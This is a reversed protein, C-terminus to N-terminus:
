FQLTVEGSGVVKEPGKEAYLTLVAFRAGHQEYTEKIVGRCTITDKPFTMAGFRMSFDKVIALDGALHNVYEGLFGMILMGHAIVGPMGIKQAFADDTHLPNFDGSAGAYKVLQVKTVPEKTYAPLEQGTTLQALELM